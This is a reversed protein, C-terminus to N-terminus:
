EAVRDTLEIAGAIHEAISQEDSSTLPYSYIVMRHDKLDFPAGAIDQTLLVTPRGVAHAYGLEWFVNPNSETVDAIIFDAAAIADVIQETIKGPFRILDARVVDITPEVAAVCRAVAEFVDNSWTEGFPMVVFTKLPGRASTRKKGRSQSVLERFYNEQAALYGSLDSVDVFRLVSASNVVLSWEPGSNGGSFPSPNEALVIEPLRDLLARKGATLGEPHMHDRTVKLEMGREGYVEVALETARVVLSTLPTAVELFSLDRVSLTFTEYAPWRPRGPPSPRASIIADLDVRKGQTSWIDRKLEEIKPWSGGRLYWQYAAEMLQLNENAWRVYDDVWNSVIDTVM